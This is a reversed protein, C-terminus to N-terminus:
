SERDLALALQSRAKLLTRSCSCSTLPLEPWSVALTARGLAGGVGMGLSAPGSAWGAWVVGMLLKTMGVRGAGDRQRQEVCGPGEM